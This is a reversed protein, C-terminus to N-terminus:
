EVVKVDIRYYAGSEYRSNNFTHFIRWEGSDPTSGERFEVDMGEIANLLFREAKSASNFVGDIREGEYDYGHFVIHVNM